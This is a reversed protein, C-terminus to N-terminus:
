HITIVNRTALAQAVRKASVDLDEGLLGNM